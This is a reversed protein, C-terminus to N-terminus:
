CVSTRKKLTAAERGADGGGDVSAKKARDSRGAAAGGSPARLREFQAARIQERLGAIEASSARLRHMSARLEAALSQARRRGRRFCIQRDVNRRRRYRGRGIWRRLDCAARAMVGPLRLLTNLDPEGAVGYLAAAERFVRVAAGLLDDNVRLESEEARDLALTLDVHGRRLVRKLM